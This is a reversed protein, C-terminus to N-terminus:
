RKIVIYCNMYSSKSIGISNLMQSSKRDTVLGVIASAIELPSFDLFRVDEIFYNLIRYCYKVTETESIDSSSLLVEIIDRATYFDLKYALLEVVRQEMRLAQQLNYGKISIVDRYKPM